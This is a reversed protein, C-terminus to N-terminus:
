SYTQGPACRLWLALPGSRLMAGPESGPRQSQQYMLQKMFGPLMRVDLLNQKTLGGVCVCVCLLRDWLVSAATRKRCKLSLMCPGPDALGPDARWTLVPVSGMFVAAQLLIAIVQFYSPWCPWCCAAARLLLPGLDIYPELVWRCVLPFPCGPLVPRADQLTPM